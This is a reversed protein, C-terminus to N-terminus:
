DFLPFHEFSQDCLALCLCHMMLYITRVNCIDMGSRGTRQGGQGRRVGHGGRGAGHGHEAQGGAHQLGGAGGACLPPVRPTTMPCEIQHSIM